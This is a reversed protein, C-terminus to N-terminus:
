QNTGYVDTFTNFKCRNKTKTKIKKIRKIKKKIITRVNNILVINYM